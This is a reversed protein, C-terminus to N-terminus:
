LAWGNCTMADHALSTRGFRAREQQGFQFFAILVQGLLKAPPQKKENGVIDGPLEVGDAGWAQLKDLKEDLSDGPVVSLQSSLKLVAKGTPAPLDAAPTPRAMSWAAAVAASSAVFTRRDCQM